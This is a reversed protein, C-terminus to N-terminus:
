CVAALLLVDATAFASVCVCVCVGASFAVLLKYETKREPSLNLSTLAFTFHPFLPTPFRHASM